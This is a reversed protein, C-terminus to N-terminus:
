GRGALFISHGPSIGKENFFGARAEIAYRYAGMPAYEKTPSPDMRLISFIRGSEKAFAIDLPASVNRMHFAGLVEVGFDFLIVTTRIEEVTACQFGARRAEDTAALKVPISVRRNEVTQVILTRRPMNLFASRWRACEPDHAAAGAARGPVVVLLLLLLVRMGVRPTEHALSM